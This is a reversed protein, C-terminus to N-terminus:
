QTDKAVKTLWQRRSPTPFITKDAFNQKKFFLGNYLQIVYVYYHPYSVTQPKSATMIRIPDKYSEECPQPSSVLIKMETM